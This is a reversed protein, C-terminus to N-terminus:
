ENIVRVSRFTADVLIPLGNGTAYLGMRAGNWCIRGGYIPAMYSSPFNTLWTPEQSSAESSYGLRYTEPAAQIHLRVRASGGHVCEDPLPFYETTVNGDVVGGQAITATKLCLTSTQNQCLVVSISNHYADNVFATIGAEHTEKTPSFEM